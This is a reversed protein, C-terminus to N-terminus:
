LCCCCKYLSVFFPHMKLGTGWPQARHISGSELISAQAKTPRKTPVSPLFISGFGPPHRLPDVGMNYIGEALGETPARWIWDHLM